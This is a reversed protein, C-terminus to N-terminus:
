LEAKPDQQRVWNKVEEAEAERGAAALARLLDRWQRYSSSVAHRAMSQGMEGPMAELRQRGAWTAQAVVLPERLWAGAQPWRQQHCFLDFVERQLARFIEPHAEVYDASAAEQGLVEQLRLWDLLPPEPQELERQVRALREQLASIAPPHAKVLKKLLVTLYSARVPAMSQQKVLEVQDWMWLCEPLAEPWMQRESFAEALKYHLAASDPSQRSALQLSEVLTPGRGVKSLWALFEQSSQLGSSRDVERGDELILMTPVVGVGFQRAEAVDRDLDLQIPVFQSRCYEVVQPDVFTTKHMVKCPGCWSASFEVLVRKGQQRALERAQDLSMREFLGEAGLSLSLLGILLM